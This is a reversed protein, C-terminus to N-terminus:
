KSLCWQVIGKAVTPWAAGLDHPAGPVKFMQTQKGRATLESFVLDPDNPAVSYDGDGQIIWSQADCAALEEILSTQTFLSWQRYSLGHFLKEPDDPNALVDKWASLTQSYAEGPKLERSAIWLLDFLKRPGGAGITVVKGMQPNLRALHAAVIGGEGLGVLGVSTSQVGAVTSAAKFAATLAETWRELTHERRFWETGATQEALPNDYLIVGPKEVVLLCAKGDVAKELAAIEASSRPATENEFLSKSGFDQVFMMLPLPKASSAPSLYFSIVRGFKDRTYYRTFPLGNLQDRSKVATYLDARQTGSLALALCLPWIM